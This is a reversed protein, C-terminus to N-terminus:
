LIGNQGALRDSRRLSQQPEEHSHAPQGHVQSGVRDSGTGRLMAGERETNDPLVLKRMFRRHRATEYGNIDLLYSVVTGDVATRIAIVKAEKNWQRTALDQVLVKEGIEYLEKPTKGKKDVRLQHQKARNDMMAQWNANRDLSNPIAGRCNRGLFRAIASGMGSNQETNNIVYVMEHIQLQNLNGCKKLLGKLQGVAREVHSQSSSNYGSSHRVTIGLKQAEEEFTHRFGPGSDALIEFPKGM